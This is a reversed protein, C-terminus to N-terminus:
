ATWITATPSQQTLNVSGHWDLIGPEPQYSSDLFFGRTVDTAHITAGTDAGTPVRVLTVSAIDDATTGPPLEVTTSAPIDRALSWSPDGGTGLHDSRYITSSGKLTIEVSAGVSSDGSPITDKTVTLFLYNREDSVQPTSPDGAAELKNERIMETATVRYTWLNTDMIHERPQDSPQLNEKYSLAFRMPDVQDCINNNSTCTEILAHDGEYTGAFHQTVHSAGQFTDSGPVRNGNQDVEVTYVWEIDTTRGWRAMLAPTDTGGDENSWIVSYTLVTHGPTSAPASEHWAVLPADTFSSAYTGGFDALNRGYLIPAFRLFRYDPDQPTFTTVKISGLVAKRVLPPTRDSAFHFRLTHKGAALSGLAFERAIPDAFPIVIDSQYRGDVSMSIVASEAGVQGWNAGPASATLDVLNEGAKATTFRATRDAAGRVLTIHQASVGAAHQNAPRGGATAAAAASQLVISLLVPVAAAVVVAAVIRTNRM